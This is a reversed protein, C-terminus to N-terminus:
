DIGYSLQHELKEVEDTCEKTQTELRNVEVLLPNIKEDYEKDKKQREEGAKENESALEKELSDIQQQLAKKEKRKFFGLSNLENQSKLVNQRLSTVNIEASTDEAKLAQLENIQTRLHDSEDCNSNITQQLEAIRNILEEKEDAHNAWYHDAVIHQQISELKLLGSRLAEVLYKSWGTKDEKKKLNLLITELQLLAGEKLSESFYREKECVEFYHNIVASHADQLSKIFADISDIDENAKANICGIHAKLNNVAQQSLPQRLRKLEDVLNENKERADDAISSKLEMLDAQVPLFVDCSHHVLLMYFDDFWITGGYKRWATESALKGAEVAKGVDELSSASRAYMMMTYLPIYPHMTDLTSLIELVRSYDDKDYADKLRDDLEEEWRFGGIFRLNFRVKFEKETMDFKLAM